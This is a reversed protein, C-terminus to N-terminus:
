RRKRMRGSPGRGSKLAGPSSKPPTPHRWKKKDKEKNHEIFANDMERILYRLTEEDEWDLEQAEAYMHIATWPIQGMGFGVPRCTGLEHFANWYFELGSKLQPANALWDPLKRRERKAQRAVATVDEPVYKLAFLLV